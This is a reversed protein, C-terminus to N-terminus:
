IQRNKKKRSLIDPYELIRRNRNTAPLDVPLSQEGYENFFLNTREIELKTGPTLHYAEGSKSEIIKM